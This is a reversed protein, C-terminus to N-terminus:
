SQREAVFRAAARLIDAEPGFAALASLAEAVTRDLLARAAEIGHLAVLTAKGRAADKATAKGAAEASGTADILDDALQFALGVSEGFRTLAARDAASAGALIPGATAAYRLLAGTKMGQLRRIAAEDLAQGEAAIDLMQGGVMGAPGAAAALGAILDLRIEPLADLRALVSFAFTLLGDGALIATAEDFARHVTPRGRRLDDDDMAPLDDHVLSYAHVCELAAAARAVGDDDRGFLKASALLLFPRLRKGPGLVAYRMAAALPEPGGTEALLRDM